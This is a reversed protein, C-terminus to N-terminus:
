IKLHERHFLLAEQVHKDWYDWTHAGPFEDYGHAVGLKELHAHFNRNHEILFDDTGCDIKLAPLASKDANQALAFPDNEGGVANEGFLRTMERKWRPDESRAMASLDFAGSHSNASVFKDPFKLALKLAGYGGMSLGGICRGARESRTPFTADIFEILDSVLATEYADGDSADCYFGKGGDPMVVLLPLGDVYREISTRRSWISHDDSYGHLLYFVSWPAAQNQPVILNCATQKGLAASSFHMECFAM